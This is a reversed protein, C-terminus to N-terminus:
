KNDAFLTDTGKEVTEARLKAPENATFGVVLIGLAILLIGVWRIPPVPEALVIASAIIVCIFQAAAASQVVNLPVFSLLWAYFGIALGFVGLGLLVRWDFAARISLSGPTASMGLKLLLNAVVTCAIMSVFAAVVSTNTM